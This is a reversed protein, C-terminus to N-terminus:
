SILRKAAGVDHSQQACVPLAELCHSSVATLVSVLFRYCQGRVKCFLSLPSLPTMKMDHNDYTIKHNIFMSHFATEITEKMIKSTFMTTSCCFAYNTVIKKKEMYKLHRSSKKQGGLGVSTRAYRTVICLEHSCQAHDYCEFDTDEAGLWIHHSHM